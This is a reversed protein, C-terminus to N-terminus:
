RISLIWEVGDLVAPRCPPEYAHGMEDVLTLRKPEHAAAYLAEADLPSIFPDARGHVIAVPVRVTAILDIPPATRSFGRAIRVRMSHRAFARGLPTQTLLASLVGRANRPLRWRAPCSVCVVGAVRGPTAAAYRLTAIAGMSAGILVVRAGAPAIADVAAAVDFRERDGLTAEGGSAGHGRADYTLVDLGIAHLADALGSVRAEDGTAGFGHVVVATGRSEGNAVRRRAHLRV